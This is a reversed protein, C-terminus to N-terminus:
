REGMWIKEEKAGLGAHDFRRQHDNVTGYGSNFGKGSKWPGRGKSTIQDQNNTRPEQNKM